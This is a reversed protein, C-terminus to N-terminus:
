GYEDGLEADARWDEETSELALSFDEDGMLQMSLSAMGLHNRPM